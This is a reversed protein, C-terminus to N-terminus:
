EGEELIQAGIAALFDGLEAPPLLLTEMEDVGGFDLEQQEQYEQEVQENFGRGALAIERSTTGTDESASGTLNMEKPPLVATSHLWGESGNSEVRVWDGRVGLATLSEGYPLREEITSLFGPASRLEGERVSVALTDGPEIAFLAGALVLVLVVAGIRKM